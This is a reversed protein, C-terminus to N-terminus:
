LIQAIELAIHQLISSNLVIAIGLKTTRKIYVADYYNNAHVRREVNRSGYIHDAYKYM